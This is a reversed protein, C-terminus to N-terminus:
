FNKIFEKAALQANEPLQGDWNFEFLKQEDAKNFSLTIVNEKVRASAWTFSYDSKTKRGQFIESVLREACRNKDEWSHDNMVLKVNEFYATKEFKLSLDSWCVSDHDIDVTVWNDGCGECGCTCRGILLKGQRFLNEQEFLRPPDLGLYDDGLLDKGDVLIRVQHDNTEPSAVINFSLINM